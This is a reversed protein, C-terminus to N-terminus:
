TAVGVETRKAAGWAVGQLVLKPAQMALLKAAMAMVVAEPSCGFIFDVLMAAPPLALRPFGNIYHILGPREMVAELKRKPDNAFLSVSQTM